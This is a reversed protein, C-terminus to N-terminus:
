RSFVINRVLIEQDGGKNQSLFAIVNTVDTLDTGGNIKAMSLEVSTWSANIEHATGPGFAAFNNVQDGRLYSGTQFGISLLASASGKIDFHLTGSAFQSLDEGRDADLELSAGWWDGGRPQVRIVNDGLLEINATGEWPILKLAASPYTTKNNEDPSLSQHIVVYHQDTVVEGPQRAANSNEIRRIAMQSKFPPLLASALLANEDGEFSKVLPKGDRTLGDFAGADAADWLAFKLTNDLGVLGFHNESGAPDAAQKWREDFAEFYFLSIGADDTWARLYEHFLKQKYEDAAKSGNVGYATGDTTAWGTEGIHIPKDIGLTAAYNVVAHYQSKAYDIARRMVAATMARQDLSEEDALVGWFQSNYFSDHFPYTHVSIFDVAHMLAVLDDSQYVPNGGGWSEYNDSSTIWINPVLEGKAKLGQLHNVWKLIVPPYVFYQVAWQVMAENGVAIAKVIDPHANALSVAAAIEQTNNEVNGLTHDPVTGGVWRNNEADWVGEAWANRAEIWAGLMVYMEFNPDRQKLTSIADLVLTALPYQSTNYTRLLKIGMASLIQMDEIVQELTPANDRTLGRYGGYSIARYTPNGFINEPPPSSIREKPSQSSDCSSLLLAIVVFSMWSVISRM